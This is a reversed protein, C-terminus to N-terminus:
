EKLGRARRAHHPAAHEPHRPPAPPRYGPLGSGRSSSSRHLDCVDHLRVDHRRPRAVREGVDGPQEVVVVDRRDDDELALREGADDGFAIEDVHNGLPEVRARDLHSVPHGPFEVRDPTAGVDALGGLVHRPQLDTVERDDVLALERADHRDAVERRPGDLLDRPAVLEGVKAAAVRGQRGGRLDVAGAGASGRPEARRDATGIPMPHLVIRGTGLVVLCAGVARDHGERDSAVAGPCAPTRSERRGLRDLSGQSGLPARAHELHLDPARVAEGFPDVRGAHAGGHLGGDIVGGARQQSAAGLVNPELSRRCAGHDDGREGGGVVGASRDLGRHLQAVDHARRIRAARAGPGAVSVSRLAVREIGGRPDVRAADHVQRDAPDGRHREPGDPDQVRQRGTEDLAGAGPLDHQRGVGETVDRAVRGDMGLAADRQVRM